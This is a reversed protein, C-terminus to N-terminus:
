GHLDLLSHEHLFSVDAPAPAAAVSEPTTTVVHLSPAAGFAALEASLGPADRELRAAVDADSVVFRVGLRCGTLRFEARVPGLNSFSVALDVAHRREPAQEGEGGGPEREPERHVVFWATALLSGDPVPLGIPRADGNRGRAVDLLQEAELGDLARQLIEKEPGEPARELARALVSKLDALAVELEAPGGHAVLAEHFVGSKALARRLTLAVAEPTVAEGRSRPQYVFQKVERAVEEVREREQPELGEAHEALQSVVRAVLTGTPRDEALVTRLATTLTREEVPEEGLLRLVFSDGSKEVKARFKQGPRLDVGTEAPVRRGGLSLYAIGASTELVEGSVVMGDQLMANLIPATASVIQLRVASVFSNSLAEM